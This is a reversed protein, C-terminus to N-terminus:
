SLQLVHVMTVLTPPLVMVVLSFYEPLKQMASDVTSFMWDEVATVM